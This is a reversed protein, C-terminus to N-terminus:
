NSSFTKEGRKAMSKLYKIHSLHLLLDDAIAQCNILLGLISYYFSLIPFFELSATVFFFRTATVLM